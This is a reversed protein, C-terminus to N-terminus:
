VVEAAKAVLVHKHVALNGLDSDQRRGEWEQKSMEQKSM